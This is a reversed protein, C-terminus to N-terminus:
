GSAPTSPRPRKSTVISRFIVASIIIMGGFVANRSPTEGTACVVWVPALVPEIMAILSTELAALSRVAIGYLLYPLAIQLTGLAVLVALAVSTRPPDAAMFPVCVLMALLNGLIMAIIPSEPSVEGRAALLQAERRIGLPM